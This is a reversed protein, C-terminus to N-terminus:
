SRASAVGVALEQTEDDNQSNGEDVQLKPTRESSFYPVTVEILEIASRLVKEGDEIANDEANTRIHRIADIPRLGYKQVGDLFWESSHDSDTIVVERDPVGLFPAALNYYSNRARQIERQVDLIKGYTDPRLRDGFLLIVRDASQDAGGLIEMVLKWRERNARRLHPMKPVITERMWEQVGRLGDIGEAILQERPLENDGIGVGIRYALACSRAINLVYHDIHERVPKWREEEARSAAEERRAEAEKMDRQRQATAQDEIAKLHKEHRHVISDVVALVFAAFLSSTGITFLLNSTWEDVWTRPSSYIVFLLGVGALRVILLDRESLESTQRRDSM